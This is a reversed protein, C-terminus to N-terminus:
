KSWHDILTRQSQFRRRSPDSASAIQISLATVNDSSLQMGGRRFRKERKSVFYDPHQPYLVGLNTVLAGPGADELALAPLM